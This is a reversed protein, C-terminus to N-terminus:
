AAVEGALEDYEHLHDDLMDAAAARRARAELESEGPLEDALLDDVLQLHSLAYALPRVDLPPRVATRLPFINTM